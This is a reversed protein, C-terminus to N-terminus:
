VIEGETEIYLGNNLEDFLVRGIVQIDYRDVPGIWNKLGISREGCVLLHSGGEQIVMGTLEVLCGEFEMLGGEIMELNLKWPGYREIIMSSEPQLEFKMGEANWLMSCNYIRVLDGREVGELPEPLNVKMSIDGGEVMDSIYISKGYPPYKLYGDVTITDTLGYDPDNRMEEVLRLLGLTRPEGRSLLAISREGYAMGDNEDTFLATINVIDGSRLKDPFMMLRIIVSTSDMGQAIPSIMLEQEDWGLYRSSRVMGNLYHIKGPIVGEEIPRPPDGKTIDLRDENQVSLITEGEMSSIEGEGTMLSGPRIDGDGREIYVEITSNDEMILLWSSDASSPSTGIIMGSVKVREGIHEESEWLHIMDFETLSSIISLILLGFISFSLVIIKVTRESLQPINM